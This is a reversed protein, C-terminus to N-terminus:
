RLAPWLAQPVTRWTSRQGDRVLVHQGVLDVDAVRLSLVQGSRLKMVALQLAGLAGVDGSEAAKRAVKTFRPVEDLYMRRM